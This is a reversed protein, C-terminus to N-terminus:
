QTLRLQSQSLPIFNLTTSGFLLLWEIYQFYKEEIRTCAPNLMRLVPPPVFHAPLGRRGDRRLARRFMVGYGGQWNIESLLMAIAIPHQNADTLEPVVFRLTPEAADAELEEAQEKEDSEFSHNDALNTLMLALSQEAAFEAGDSEELWEPARESLAWARNVNSEEIRFQQLEPQYEIARPPPTYRLLPQQQRQQLAFAEAYPAPLAPASRRFVSVPSFHKLIIELFEFFPQKANLLLMTHQQRLLVREKLLLKLPEFRTEADYLKREEKVERNLRRMASIHEAQMLENANYILVSSTLFTVMLVTAKILHADALINNGAGTVWEWARRWVWAWTSDFEGGESYRISGWTARSVAMWFNIPILVVTISVYQAKAAFVAMALREQRWLSQHCIRLVTLAVVLLLLKMSLQEGDTESWYDSLYEVVLQFYPVPEDSDPDGWLGYYILNQLTREALHAGSVATGRSAVRPGLAPVDRRLYAGTALQGEPLWQEIDLILRLQAGPDSPNQAKAHACLKNVVHIFRREFQVETPDNGLSAPRFLSLVMLQALQAVSQASEFSNVNEPVLTIKSVLFVNAMKTSGAGSNSITCM